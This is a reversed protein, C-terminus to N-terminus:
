SRQQQMIRRATNVLPDYDRHNGSSERGVEEVLWGHMERSAKCLIVAESSTAQGATYSALTNMSSADMLEVKLDQFSMLTLGAPAFASLTFFLCECEPDLHTVDVTLQQRTSYRTSPGGHIVSQFRTHRFDAFGLLTGYKDLAICTGNLHKREHGAGWSLNFHMRSVGGASQGRGFHASRGTQYMIVVLQVVSGFPVDLDGWKKQDGQADNDSASLDRGRYLLRQKTTPVGLHSKIRMKVESLPTATSLDFSCRRGDLLAVDVQGYEDEIGRQRKDALAVQERTKLAAVDKFVFCCSQWLDAQLLEHVDTATLVASCEPCSRTRITQSSSLDLVKILCTGCTSPAHMCDASIQAPFEQSLKGSGCHNCQM